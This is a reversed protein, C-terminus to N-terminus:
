RSEAHALNTIDSSKTPDDFTSYSQMNQIQM